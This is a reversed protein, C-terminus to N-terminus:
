GGCTDETIKQLIEGLEEMRFPKLLAHSFGYRAFDAMVPDNSYGSAVILRAAPDRALIQSAAELGGMRGPVTLDMVVCLPRAGRDLEEDYLAVAEEGCACLSVRYGLYTLIEGAVDRINEEDDMVIVYGGGSCAAPIGPVDEERQVGPSAPLYVQFTTGEGVLSSVTVEGGHKKVISYLSTLGLGTGTDKTTFYPDFIRGLNESPIGCGQDAVTLRVYPGPKRAAVEDDIRCNDLEVRVVGGRLMSQDANILLNNIVQGIQGGDAEIPWLGDAVRLKGAVNSGRLVFALADRVVRGVDLAKKVPEGGRSFTLLQCTLGTAEKVAKECRDIRERATDDEPLLIRVLSLNGMIGTLINNFDHAIGGALVGLSELKQSRLQEEQRKKRESIDRALIQLAKEGRFDFPASSVEVPVPTGDLRVFLEEVPPNHEGSSFANQIRGTVFDRCDPHVFDLAERGYLEEPREAGLLQAGRQNVFVLKGGTHIYIADPFLEVLGRYRAESEQLEEEAQRRLTIDRGIGLVGILGGATDYVPTKITELLAREDTGSYTIWEESTTPGGAEIAERDRMRFRDATERDVFDYDTRGIIEAESAGFFREFLSNCLLYAGNGDKMWVLDPLTLLLARLRRESNRIEEEARKRDTIDSFYGATLRRGDHELANATVEVPITTGSALRHVTEFRVPKCDEMRRDLVDLMGIDFAPDWDPIRMTLLKELSIGFHSCAARNAYVMRGGDAPDVVYVPDRTYEILARFFSAEKEAKVRETTDRVIACYYATDDYSFHNITIEVPIVHGDRHRHFRTPLCISGATGIQKLHAQWSDMAFYPDIDAISKSLMEERSYGLMRCAAQNVNWFHSDAAIWYVADSINDISSATLYLTEEAAKLVSIDQAFSCSLMRGGYTLYSVAVKVPFTTGDKRRHVSEFANSGAAALKDRHAKWWEPTLGPVIDFFTRDQLEKRTYGLSRAGHENVYMIRGNDDGRFIGISANDIIFQSLRLADESRKRETIDEIFGHFEASGDRGRVARMSMSCIIVSGDRCRFREEFSSWGDRSLVHDTIERRRAPNEYVAEAVSTRDAKRILEEPADYKLMRAGADNLSLIKGDMTARFIGVPANEFLDRYAHMADGAWPESSVDDRIEAQVLGNERLLRVLRETEGDIDDVLILKKTM